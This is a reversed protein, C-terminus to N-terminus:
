ELSPFILYTVKRTVVYFPLFPSLFSFFLLFPLSSPMNYSFNYQFSKLLWGGKIECKSTVQTPTPSPFSIFIFYIEGQTSSELNSFLRKLLVQAGVGSLLFLPERDELDGIVKSMVLDTAVALVLGRKTM